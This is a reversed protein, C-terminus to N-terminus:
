YQQKLKSTNLFTVLKDTAIRRHSYMNKESLSMQAFTAQTGDPIFVSDYGFGDRGKQMESITGSCIGEFFHAKNNLLLCIVTRFKAKRNEKGHLAQLLKDINKQFNKEDGAYRASKVGPAGNLAEVELGTDESFCDVSTLRYITQAKEMANAQLTDHPEPIEIDIGAEQLSIVHLDDPLVAKIEEVKHQNNTAFIITM